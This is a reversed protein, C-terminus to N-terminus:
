SDALLCKFPILSAGEPTFSYLREITSRYKTELKIDNWLAFTFHSLYLLQGVQNVVELEARDKGFVYVSCYKVLIGYVQTENINEDVIKLEVIYDKDRERYLPRTADVIVGLVSGTFANTNTSRCVDAIKKLNSLADEPRELM